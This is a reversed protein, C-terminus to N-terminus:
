SLQPLLLLSFVTDAPAQLSYLSGCKNCPGFDFVIPWRNRDAHPSGDFDVRSMMSTANVSASLPLQLSVQVIM